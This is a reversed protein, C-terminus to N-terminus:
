FQLAASAWHLGAGFATLVVLDGPKIRNAQQAEWLGIPVSGSGTNGLRDVNVYVRDSAISLRKGVADIIRQNAQHPILLDVDDITKDIEELLRATSASMRRVAQRFVQGGDMVLRNYEGSALVDAGFPHRTGGIDLKLIETMSGDTGAVAHIVSAVGPEPGVIVAGAGDGFLVSTARDDQAILRSIVEVGVVLINKPEIALRARAVDLAMVFGACGSGGLDYAPVEDLGLRHQLYSATDPIRAEPTDTAVIVEGIDHPGLGADAMAALAARESLDVTSEDNAAIRRERIGTRQVLWEDSTDVLESWDANTMVKEPVYGGFGLIHAM